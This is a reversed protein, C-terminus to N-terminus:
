FQEAHTLDRLSVRDMGDYARGEESSLFHENIEGLRGNLKVMDVRGEADFLKPAEKEPLDAFNLDCWLDMREEENVLRGKRDYEYLQYALPLGHVRCIMPRGPYVSCSGATSLLPCGAESGSGALIGSATQDRSERSRPPPDQAGDRGHSALWRRLAFHEVPLVEIESCCFFCGKRCQLHNRYHRFLPGVEADVEDILRHYEDLIM